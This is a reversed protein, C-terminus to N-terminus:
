KKKDFVFTPRSLNGRSRMSEGSTITGRLLFAHTKRGSLYRLLTRSPIVSRSIFCECRDLVDQSVASYVYGVQHVQDISHVLAFGRWNHVVDSVEAGDVQECVVLLMGSEVEVDEQIGHDQNWVGLRLERLVMLKNAGVVEDFYGSFANESWNFLVSEPTEDAVIDQYASLLKWSGQMEEGGSRWGTKKENDTQIVHSPKLGRVVNEAGTLDGANGRIRVVVPADKEWALQRMEAIVNEMQREFLGPNRNARVGSFYRACVPSEFEEVGGNGLFRRVEYGSIVGPMSLVPFSVDADIAYVCGNATLLENVVRRFAHVSRMNTGLVLVRTHYSALEGTCFSYYSASNQSGTPINLLNEKPVVRAYLKDDIITFPLPPDLQKNDTNSDSNRTAFPSADDLITFLVINGHNFNKKRVLTRTTEHHKEDNGWKRSGHRVCSRAHLVDLGELFARDSPTSKLLISPTENTLIAGCVRVVGHLVSLYCSGRVEIVGPPLRIISYPIGARSGSSIQYLADPSPRPMLLLLPFLRPVGTFPISSGSPYAKDPFLKLFFIRIGFIANLNKDFIM